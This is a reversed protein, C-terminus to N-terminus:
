TARRSLANLKTNPFSSKSKMYFELFLQEELVVHWVESTLEQLSGFQKGWPKKRPGHGEFPRAAIIPTTLDDGFDIYPIDDIGSDASSVASLRMLDGAPSKKANLVKLARAQSRRRANAVLQNFYYDLIHVLEAYM